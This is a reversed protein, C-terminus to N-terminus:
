NLQVAFGTNFFYNSPHHKISSGASGYVMWHKNLQYLFGADVNHFPLAHGYQAFYEGFVQWKKSVECKLDTTAQFEWDPHFAEQKPGANVTLTLPSWKKEVVLLVAPSWQAPQTGNTFPLQLYGVLSVAPRVDTQEVLGLKAGIALPYQSQATEDMFLNRHHGQEALLRLEFNKVLGYRLLSSSIFAHKNKEVVTYYLSSELQITNEKVVSAGDSQDPRDTNIKQARARGMLLAFLLLLLANRNM